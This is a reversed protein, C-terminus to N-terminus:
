QLSLSGFASFILALLGSAVFAAPAGKFIAPVPARDLRERISAMLIIAVTFGIGACFGNFSSKMFSSGFDKVNILAVGLIACNTTILPLYIGLAQYLSPSFRNLFMEVLQVLTAIVLIYTVTQMFQLNVTTGFVIFEPTLLYTQLLWTVASAITMVFTVAFGMGVAADLNKSVGIFPCLGLFRALVFNNIFIASLAIYMYEKM